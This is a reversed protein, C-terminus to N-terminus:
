GRDRDRWRVVLFAAVAGLYFSIAAVIVVLLALV